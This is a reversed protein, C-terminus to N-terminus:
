KMSFVFSADAVNISTEGDITLDGAISVALAEALTVMINVPRTGSRMVDTCMKAFLDPAIHLSGQMVPRDIPIHMINQSSEDGFKPHVELRCSGRAINVLRCSLVLHRGGSLSPIRMEASQVTMSIEKTREWDETM